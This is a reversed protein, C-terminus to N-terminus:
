VPWFARKVRRGPRTLVLADSNSRNLPIVFMIAYPNKVPCIHDPFCTEGSYALDLAYNLHVNRWMREMITKNAIEEPTAILTMYDRPARDIVTQNKGGEGTVNKVVMMNGPYYPKSFNNNIIYSSSNVNGTQNDIRTILTMEPFIMATNLPLGAFRVPPTYQAWALGQGIPAGPFDVTRFSPFIAALFGTQTAAVTGDSTQAISIGGGGAPPLPSMAFAGTDSAALMQQHFITLEFPVLITEDNYLLDGARLERRVELETEAIPASASLLLYAMLGIMAYKKLWRSM